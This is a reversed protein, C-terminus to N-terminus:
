SAKKISTSRDFFSAPLDVVLYHQRDKESFLREFTMKLQKIGPEKLADYPLDACSLTAHGRKGVRLKFAPRETTPAIRAKGHHELTGWSLELAQDAQWRLAALLGAGITFCAYVGGRPARRMTLTMGDPPCSAKAATPPTAPKFPM